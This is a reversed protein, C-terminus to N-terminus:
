LELIPDMAEGLCAFDGLSTNLNEFDNAADLNAFAIETEDVCLTFQEGSPYIGDWAIDPTTFPFKFLFLKGFDNSLTPFWYDNQFSNDHIFVNAPYPNYDIDRKSKEINENLQSEDPTALAEVLDYSVIATGVTRNNIIQNKFIEIDRTALLMIGTGPPVTAVVNGAPAFNRFNNNFVKNLYVRTTHGYQTLGPLDFVLIGGTNDHASNGYIEVWKSNESEIGAVNYMAENNRIIVSDSQGVYIGADSAGIAICEEILVRKSLVPYFAYAGNQEDPEGTWQSKVRRITVGRSDTIKINDGKANEITFDELTINTANSIRMGEAGEEQMEFSLITKDIGQGRLTIQKKGDLSLSRKFMFHGEPLDIVVSDESTILQTQLDREISKWESGIEKVDVETCAIFFLTLLAYLVKKNM